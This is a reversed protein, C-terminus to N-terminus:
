QSVEMLEILTKAVRQIEDRMQDETLTDSGPQAEMQQKKLYIQYLHFAIHTTYKNIRQQIVTETLRKATLKDRYEVVLDMDQNIYIFLPSKQSPPDFAGADTGSWSQGWCTEGEWDDRKVYKLEYPPRRQAGSQIRLEIRRPTPPEIVTALFAAFLTMGPGIAEIDFKLEEGAALGQSAQILLEFRGNDPNTLFYNPEAGPAECTARITWTAPSGLVLDDKGDWKLKVHVDSGGAVIKIPQRSTVKIYTPEDKLPKPPLPPPATKGPNIVVRRELVRPETFGKFLATARLTTEIPYEDDDFGEPEVFKLALEEGILQATRTVLMEKVPPDFTLALTELDKWAKEPRPAIIWKRADNPKLRM